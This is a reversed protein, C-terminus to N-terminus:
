PCCNFKLFFLSSLCVCLWRLVFMRFLIAVSNHVLRINKMNSTPVFIFIRFSQEVALGLRNPTEGYDYFSPFYQTFPPPIKITACNTVLVCRTHLHM